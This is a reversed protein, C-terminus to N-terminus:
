GFLWKLNSGNKVSFKKHYCKKIPSFDLTILNSGNQDMKSLDSGIQDETQVSKDVTDLSSVNSFPFGHLTKEGERRRWEIKAMETAVWSPIDPIAYSIWIKLLLM